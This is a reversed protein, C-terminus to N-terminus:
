ILSSTFNQIYDALTIFIKFPLFKWNVLKFYDPRPVHREFWPSRIIEQVLIFLAYWLIPMILPAYPFMQLFFYTWDQLMFPVKFLPNDYLPSADMKFFQLLQVADSIAFFLLPM